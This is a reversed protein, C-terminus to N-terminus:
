KQREGPQGKCGLTGKPYFVQLQIPSCLWQYDSTGHHSLVTKEKSGNVYFLVKFTSRM